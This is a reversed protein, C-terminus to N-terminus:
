GVPLSGGMMKLSVECVIGQVEKFRRESHPVSRAPTMDQCSPCPTAQGLSGVGIGVGAGTAIIMERILAPQSMIPPEINIKTSKTTKGCDIPSAPRIFRRKKAEM